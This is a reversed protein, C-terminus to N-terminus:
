PDRTHSNINLILGVVTYSIRPSKYRLKRAKYKCTIEVATGANEKELPCHGVLDKPSLKSNSCKRVLIFLAETYVMERVSHYREQSAVSTTSPETSGAHHLHAGPNPATPQRTGTGEM